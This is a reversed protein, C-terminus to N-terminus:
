GLHRVDFLRPAFDWGFSMQTKLTAYRDPFEPAHSAHPIFRGASARWARERLNLKLRPLQNGGSVRVRLHSVGNLIESRPIEYIQRSFMGVHKGLERDNWYVASQYDIGEFILFARNDEAHM